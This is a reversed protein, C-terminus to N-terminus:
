ARAAVPGVGAAAGISAYIYGPVHLSWEVNWERRLSRRYPPVGKPVVQRPAGYRQHRRRRAPHAIKASPAAHDDVGRRKGVVERITTVAPL